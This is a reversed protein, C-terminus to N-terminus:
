GRRTFRGRAIELPARSVAHSFQPAKSVAHSIDPPLSGGFAASAMAKRGLGVLLIPTMDDMAMM